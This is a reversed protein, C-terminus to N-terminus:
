KKRAVDTYYVSQKIVVRTANPWQALFLRKGHLRLLRKEEDSVQNRCATFAGLLERFNMYAGAKEVFESSFVRQMEGFLEGLDRKRHIRADPARHKRMHFTYNGKVPKAVPKAVPKVSVYCNKGNLYGAHTWQALFLQKSHHKFLGREEASMGKEGRSSEFVELLENASICSGEDAEFRTAFVAKM